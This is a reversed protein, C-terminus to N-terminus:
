GSVVKGFCVGAQGSIFTFACILPQMVEVGPERERLTRQELGELSGMEDGTLALAWVVERSRVTKPQERRRSWVRPAAQWSPEVEPVPSPNSVAVNEMPPISM